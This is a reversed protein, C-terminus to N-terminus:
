KYDWWVCVTYYPLENWYPKMYNHYPLIICCLYRVKQAPLDVGKATMYLYM